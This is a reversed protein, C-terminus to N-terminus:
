SINASVSSVFLFILDERLSLKDVFNDFEDGIVEFLLKTHTNVAACVQETSVAFSQSNPKTCATVDPNCASSFSNLVKACTEINGANNETALEKLKKLKAKIGKDAEYLNLDQNPTGSSPNYNNFVFTLSSANAPRFVFM